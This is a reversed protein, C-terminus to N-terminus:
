DLSIESNVTFGLVTSRFPKSKRLVLGDDERWDAGIHIENITTEVFETLFYDLYPSDEITYFDGASLTGATLEKSDITRVSIDSARKKKDQIDQGAMRFPLTVLDAQYNFGVFARSTNTTIIKTDTTSGSSFALENIEGVAEVTEGIFQFGGRITNSAEDINWSSYKYPATDQFKNPQVPLLMTVTCFTGGADISKIVALGKDVRIYDGVSYASFFNTANEMTVTVDDGELASLIITTTQPATLRPEKYCDVAFLREGITPINLDLRELYRRTTSNIEREVIFYVRDYGNERIVSVDLFKGKTSHDTWAYVNQNPIYTMSLATGDERVAWVQKEPRNAYAWRIIKNEQRFFHSSLLSRDVVEYSNRLNTPQISNVGSSGSIVYLIHDEVKIPRIEEAGDDTIPDSRLSDTSIIQDDTGRIHFVQQDTFALLGLSVPTLNHIPTLEPSDLSLDLADATVSIPTFDFSDPEGIRSLFLSMPLNETGAYAQRQQIRTSCAPNNGTAPSTVISATAGTGSGSDTITVVSSDSYGEGPNLIRIGNVEGAGDIIVAGEFGTGDAISVTTTTKGYSSGAATINISLVAGDAFPNDPVLPTRTFDPVVNHDVFQTSISEGLYGLQMGLTAEHGKPILISRYINYRVVGAVADWMVKLSGANNTIDIITESIGIGKVYSEIGDANISTVAYLVGADQLANDPNYVAGGNTSTTTSITPASPAARNGQFGVETIQWNDDSFRTLKRPSYNNSTIRVEDRFQNISLSSLDAETYPSALEYVLDLRNILDVSAGTHNLNLYNPTSDGAVRLFINNIDDVEVEWLYDELYFIETSTDFLRCYVKQGNTLNHGVVTFRTKTAYIGQNDYDDVQKSTSTIFRGDQVFNIKQDSFVILYTNGAQKNFQFPFLRSVETNSLPLIFELPPRVSAGGRYDITWNVGYRLGLEFKEIDSRQLYAPSLVGASFAFTVFSETM